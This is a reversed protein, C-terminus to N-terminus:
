KELQTEFSDPEPESPSVEVLVESKNETIETLTTTTAPYLRNYEREAYGILFTKNNDIFYNSKNHMFNDPSNLYKLLSILFTNRRESIKLKLSDVLKLALPDNISEM